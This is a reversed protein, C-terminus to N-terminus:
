DFVALLVWVNGNKSIDLEALRTLNAINPPIRMLDNESLSLKRLNTLRFFKQTLFTHRLHLAPFHTFVCLVYIFM